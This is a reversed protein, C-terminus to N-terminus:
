SLLIHLSFFHKFYKNLSLYNNNLYELCLNQILRKKPLNLSLPDSWDSEADFEDKAKVRIDYTGKSSWTHSASCVMGSDFPGLWDSFDGDGWDFLFYIKNGDLETTSATFTYKVGSKGSTPGSPPDPIVPPRDYFCYIKGPYFAAILKNGGLIPSARCYVQLNDPDPNFEWILKGNTSNLCYLNNRISNIYVKNDGSAPSSYVMDGTDYKWILNGTELDLCYLNDDASGIFMRDDMISPSSEVYYNTEFTWILEGTEADLCYINYDCSGFYVKGNYVAPSSFVKGETLYSWSMNGTESDLCYLNFDDSGVYVKGDSIAASSRVNDGTEYSWIEERSEIDYCYLKNDDAGFYLRNNHITPSSFVNGIEIISWVKKGTLLNLCLLRDQEDIGKLGFYVHNESIAPTSSTPM